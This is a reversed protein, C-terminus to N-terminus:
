AVSRPGAAAEENLVLLSDENVRSRVPVILVLGLLLVAVIGLIGWYQVADQTTAGTVATGLM